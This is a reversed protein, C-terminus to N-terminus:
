AFRDPSTLTVEESSDSQMNDLIKRYPSPTVKGTLIMKGHELDGDCVVDWGASGYLRVINPLEQEFIAREQKYDQSCIGETIESLPVSICVTGASPRSIYEPKVYEGALRMEIRMIYIDLIDYEKTGVWERKFEDPTTLQLSELIKRYPSAPIEGILVLDSNPFNQPELRVDQWGAKKYLEVIKPLEDHFAQERQEGSHYIRDNYIDEYLDDYHFIAGDNIRVEIQTSSLHRFQYIEDERPFSTDIGRLIEEIRKVFHGLQDDESVDIGYFKTEAPGTLKMETKDMVTVPCDEGTIVIALNKDRGSNKLEELKRIAADIDTLLEM